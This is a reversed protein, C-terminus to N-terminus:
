CEPAAAQIIVDNEAGGILANGQSGGGRHGKRFGAVATGKGEVALFLLIMAFAAVNDAGGQLALHQNDIIDDGRAGGDAFGDFQDAGGAGFRGADENRQVALFPAVALQRRYLFDLRFEADGYDADDLEVLYQVVELGLRAEVLM